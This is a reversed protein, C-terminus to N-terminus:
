REPYHRRLAMIDQAGLTKKANSDQSLISRSDYFPNRIDTLLGLAQVLEELMASEYSRMSLSRSFLVAARRIQGDAGYWVRTSAGGIRQGDLGDIGTATLTAGAEADVFLVPIDPADDPEVMILRVGAGAANVAQVARVLAARARKAKGGLFAPDLRTIAVRLPRDLVWRVMPKACDGGPPAACAVLRYFDQDSLAGDSVVFEQAAAGGALLAAGALALARRM